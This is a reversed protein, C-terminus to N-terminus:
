LVETLLIQLRTKIPLLERKVLMWTLSLDIAFYEHILVDRM